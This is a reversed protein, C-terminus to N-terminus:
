TMGIELDERGPFLFSERVCCFGTQSHRLRHGTGNCVDFAMLLRVKEVQNHELGLIYLDIPMLIRETLM